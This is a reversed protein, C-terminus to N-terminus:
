VKVEQLFAKLKDPDKKGPYIEVGSSVDVGIPKALQIAAWVNDPNLGGALVFPADLKSVIRWDFTRGDGAGPDLIIDNESYPKMRGKIFRATDSSKVHIRKMVRRGVRSCFEPSENGHLQVMTVGSIQITRQIEDLPQDMFVGVTTVMPPLARVITRAQEPTVQRKSEAFILGIADAGLTVALRADEVNTVGCIKVRTVPYYRM